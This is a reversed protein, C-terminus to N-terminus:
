HTLYGSSRCAITGAYVQGGACDCGVHFDGNHAAEQAIREREWVLGLARRADRRELTRILDEKSLDAYPSKMGAFKLLTSYATSLKRTRTYRLRVSISTERGPRSAPDIYAIQSRSGVSNPAIM